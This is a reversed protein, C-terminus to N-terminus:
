SGLVVSSTMGLVNRLGKTNLTPNESAKHCVGKRSRSSLDINNEALLMGYINYNLNMYNSNVNRTM